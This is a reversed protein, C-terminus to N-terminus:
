LYGVKKQIDRVNTWDLARRNDFHAHPNFYLLDAVARQPSAISIGDDDKQIGADNFLFQDALQRVFFEHGGLTFKRSVSSVFTVSQGAQFIIGAQGLVYECSIYCYRHLAAAGLAFPHLQTVPVTTYLGKQVPILIGKATYRKIQTYLTNTNQIQWLLGLDRTHFLRNKQKLLIDINYM